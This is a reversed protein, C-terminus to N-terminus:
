GYVMFLSIAMLVAAALVLPIAWLRQKRLQEPSPRQQYWKENSTAHGDSGTRKRRQARLGLVLLPVGALLGFASSTLAHDAHGLLSGM